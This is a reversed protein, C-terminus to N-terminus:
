FGQAFWSLERVLRTTDPRTVEVDFGTLTENQVRIYEAGTGTPANRMSVVPSPPTATGGSGGHYPRPYTVHVLGTASTTVTGSQLLDPVDVAWTFSRLEALVGEALSQVKMRMRIRRALYNGPRFPAWEPRTGGGTWDNGSPDDSVSIEPAVAILPAADLVNVQGLANFDPVDRISDPGVAAADWGATVRALMRRALTVIHADPVQFYGTSKPAARVYGTGSAVTLNTLGMSSLAVTALEQIRDITLQTSHLVVEDIVGAFLPLALPGAGVLFAVNGTDLIGAGPSTLGVLVGNVFLRAAASSCDAHIHAVAGAGYSGAPSSVVTDAGGPRVFHAEIVGGSTLRLYPGDSLAGGGFGLVWQDAVATPRLLCSFGLTAQDAAFPREPVAEAVDDVGDFSCAADADHALLGPVSTAGGAAIPASAVVENRIFRYYTESLRCFVSPAAARVYSAYVGAAYQRAARWFARARNHNMWQGLMAYEDLWGLFQGGLPSGQNGLYTTGTATPFTAGTVSGEAYGDLYLALERVEAGSDDYRRFSVIACHWQGDTVPTGGLIQTGGTASLWRLAGSSEITLWAGGGKSYLYTRAAPFSAWDYWRFWLVLSWQDATLDHIASAAFTVRDNTADIRVCFADPVPDNSVAGPQQGCSQAPVAATLTGVVAGSLADVVDPYMPHHGMRWYHAPGDALVASRYDGWRAAFEDHSIVVNEVLDATGKVVLSAPGGYKYRPAGFQTLTVRAAVHYAADAVVPFRTERTTGIVVARAWGESGRRIEYEVDGRLDEVRDWSLTLQGGHTTTVFQAGLNQVTGVPARFLTGTARYAVPPVDELSQENGGFRNFSTFKLSLPLFASPDLLRAPLALKLIAGDLRVVNAGKKHSQAATGSRGRSLASLTYRNPATLTPLAYAFLEYYGDSSAGADVFCLSTGRLAEAVTFPELEVTEGEPASLLVDVETSGATLATQLKGLRARRTIQGVAQYDVGGDESLWVTCGGWQASQGTAAIWLELAGNSLEATPEFLVPEAIKGPEANWDSGDDVAGQRPHRVTTHLGTIIEVGKVTLVEDEDEEISEIRVVPPDAGPAEAPVSVLDGADLRAYRWGPLQFTHRNPLAVASQCRVAALAQATPEDTLMHAAFVKADRRGFLEIAAQDSAQTTAVEYLGPTFHVKLDDPDEGAAASSQNAIAGFAPYRNTYEVVHVNFADAPDARKVVWSGPLFDADTLAYSVVVRYGGQGDAELWAPTHTVQDAPPSFVPGTTVSDWLPLVHLQGDSFRVTANSQELIDKLYERAERQEVCALSLLFGHARCATRFDTLDGLMALPFGSGHIPNSTLDSLIDAPNSGIPEGDPNPTYTFQGVMGAIGSYEPERVTDDIQLGFVEFTLNPVQAQDYLPWIHRPLYALYPLALAPSPPDGSGGGTFLGTAVTTWPPQTATGVRIEGQFNSSQAVGDVVVDWHKLRYLTDRKYLTRVGRIPGEGLGFMLSLFYFYRETTAPAAAGFGGGTPFSVHDLDGKSYNLKGVWLLNGSVRCRGYIVPIPVGDGSTSIELGAAAPKKPPKPAGM